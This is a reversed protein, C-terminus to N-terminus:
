SAMLALFELIASVRFANSNWFVGSIHNKVDDLVTMNTNPHLVRWLVAKAVDDKSPNGTGYDGKHANLYEKKLTRTFHEGSAQIQKGKAKISARGDLWFIKWFPSGVPPEVLLPRRFRVMGLNLRLEFLKLKMNM